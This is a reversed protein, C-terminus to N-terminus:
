FELRAVTDLLFNNLLVLQIGVRWPSFDFVGIERLFEFRQLLFFELHSMAVFEREKKHLFSLILSLHEAVTPARKKRCTAQETSM